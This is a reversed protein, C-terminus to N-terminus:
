GRGLQGALATAGGTALRVPTTPLQMAVLRVGNRPHTSLRSSISGMAMRGM